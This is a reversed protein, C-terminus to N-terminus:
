LLLHESTHGLVKQLVPNEWFHALLLENKREKKYVCVGDEIFGSSKSRVQPKFGLVLGCPM